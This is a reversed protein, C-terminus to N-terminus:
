DLAPDGSCMNGNGDMSCFLSCFHVLMFMSMRVVMFTMVGVRMVAAGMNMMAHCVYFVNDPIVKGKRIINFIVYNMHKFPNRLCFAMYM